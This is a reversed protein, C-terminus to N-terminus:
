FISFVLLTTPLTPSSILKRVLEGWSVTEYKSISSPSILLFRLLINSSGQYLYMPTPYALCLKYPEITTTSSASFIWFQYIKNLRMINTYGEPNAFNLYWRYLKGIAGIYYLLQINNVQHLCVQFLDLCEQEGGVVDEVRGGQIVGCVPLLLKYQTIKVEFLDECFGM